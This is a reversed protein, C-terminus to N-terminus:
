PVDEPWKVDDVYSVFLSCRPWCNARKKELHFEKLSQTMESDFVCLVLQSNPADACHRKPQNSFCIHFLILMIRLAHPVVATDSTLWANVVGQESHVTLEIQHAACNAWRRFTLLSKYVIWSIKGSSNTVDSSDCLHPHALKVNARPSMAM